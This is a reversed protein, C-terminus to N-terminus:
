YWARAAKLRRLMKARAKMFAPRDGREAAEYALNWPSGPTCGRLNGDYKEVLPCPEEAYSSLCHEWVKIKHASYEKHYSCLACTDGDLYAKAGTEGKIADWRGRLGAREWKEIALSLHDEGAEMRERLEKKNMLKKAIKM